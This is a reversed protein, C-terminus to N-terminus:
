GLELVLMTQVWLILGFGLGSADGMLYAVAQRKSRIKRRPPKRDNTLRGLAELYGKLTPVGKLLSMKEREEM